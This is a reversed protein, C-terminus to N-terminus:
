KQSDASPMIVVSLARHSAMQLGVSMDDAAYSASTFPRQCQMVTEASSWGFM